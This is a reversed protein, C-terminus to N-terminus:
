VWLIPLTHRPAHRVSEENTLDLREAFLDANRHKNFCFASKSVISRSGAEYKM